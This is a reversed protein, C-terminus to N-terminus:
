GAMWTLEAQGNWEHTPAALVLSLQNTLCATYLLHRYGLIRPKVIYAPTQSVTISFSILSARHAMHPKPLVKNKYM